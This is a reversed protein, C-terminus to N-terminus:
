VRAIANAIFRRFREWSERKELWSEPSFMPRAAACLEWLPLNAVPQGTAREYADLFADAPEEGLGSLVIGMRAYAVDAGPDGYAAEEWDLVASIEGGDWLMNGAWYDVHVLGSPVPPRAPYLKNVLHWVREGDPHALMYGPIEGRHIFWSIEADSDLLFARMGDDLPIAHIKALMMARTRAWQVSDAPDYVQTGRVFNTVIGPIELLDGTQDLYIPEPAPVGHKKLLEYIKFERVAKAGQDYDGFVKFRRIVFRREEGSAARAHVLHTYNSFSGPLPAVAILTSNPTIIGLLAHVSKKSPLNQPKNM